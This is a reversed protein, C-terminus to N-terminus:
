VRRHDDARTRRLGRLGSVLLFATLVHLLNLIMVATM